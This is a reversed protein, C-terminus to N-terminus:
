PETRLVRPLVLLRGCRVCEGAKADPWPHDCACTRAPEPEGFAYKWGNAGPRPRLFVRGLEGLM